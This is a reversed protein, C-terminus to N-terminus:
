YNTGLAPALDTAESLEVFGAGARERTVWAPSAELQDAFNRVNAAGVSNPFFGFM